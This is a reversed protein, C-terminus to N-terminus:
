PDDADRTRHGHRRDRADDVGATALLSNTALFGDRGTPLDFELVSAGDYTRALKALPSGATACVVTLQKPESAIAERCAGVIDKNAGGASLILVNFTRQIRLARSLGLPTEIRAPVGFAAEYLDAVFHAASLSGGSGVVYLPVVPPGFLTALREPSLKQAWEYTQALAALESKFPKGV